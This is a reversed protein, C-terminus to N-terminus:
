AAKYAVLNISNSGLRSFNTQVNALPLGDVDPFEDFSDECTDVFTGVTSLKSNVDVLLGDGRVLRRWMRCRTRRKRTSRRLRRLRSRRQPENHCLDFVQHAIVLQNLALQCETMGNDILRQPERLHEASSLPSARPRHQRVQRRPGGLLDCAFAIEFGATVAFGAIASAIPKRCAAMAIVPDANPNKSTAKSPTRTPPSTSAPAASAAASPSSWSPDM